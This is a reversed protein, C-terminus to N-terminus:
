YEGIEMANTTAREGNKTEDSAGHPVPAQTQERQSSMCKHPIITLTKELTYIVITCKLCFVSLEEQRMTCKYVYSMGSSDHGLNVWWYEADWIIVSM